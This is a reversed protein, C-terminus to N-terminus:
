PVTYEIHLVPALAAGSDFASATRTGTGTVIIAMANGSSWGSRNVIEQVVSKLEPTRQDVGHAGVVTWQPPSWPGASATTRPRSSVNNNGSGAVFTAATDSAQGQVTLSGANNTAEDVTFQVYAKTVTANRPVTVGTFRMGVAKQVNTGDTTLELDSSDIYTSGSAREEADDAIARVPVDLVSATTQNNVQVAVPDSAKTNGAADTAVATLSVPGNSVSTTNWSVSFGNSGDTDTGISSTDAFFQVKAVSTTTDSASANVPITGSVQGPAPATISVIPATNDVTVNVSDSTQNPLTANDTATAKITHAGDSAGTTDWQVSWAGGTGPSNATGILTGGDFFSVHDVGHDDSANATITISGRLKTGGTPDTITVSPADDVNDLTATVQDSTTHSATDTAIAKFTHAGDTAGVTLWSAGYGDSGDTDVGIPNGDVLFEVQTVGHDDSATATVDVSTGSVTSNNTPSTIHVTPPADNDITVNKTDTTTHGGTDTAIASVSHPGSTFNTTNWTGTYGDGATTDTAVLTSDVKFEVKTVGRDDGATAALSSSTGSVTQGESPSTLAVAPADDVNDVKVSISASATQSGTDSATATVTYPSGSDPYGTTTNWPVTWGGTASTDTGILTTNVFFDVKTIGRDDTPNATVNVTGSVTANNSPNTVAVAPPADVNDVNVNITASGIQNASDTVTATVGYGGDPFSGNATNWAVTWGGTASTDTGIPTSGVKFDVKQIGHDDTPNVTLNVTGSVTQNNVPNTFTVSPPQDSGGTTMEYVKGDNETPQPDNDIGRDPIYYDTRGTVASAPALGLGAAKISSAATISITSLLTGTKTTEYIKKTKHDLTLVSNHATDIAIGEPDGEGYQGVDFHTVVDDGGKSPVGDFVGNTGPSIEYVETGVGDITFLHNTTPDYAVDEPDTNPFPKTSIFSFADDSTGWRGDAGPKVLNVKDADDDSIFLTRDSARYAVGTPENSIAKVTTDGTQQVAGALTTKFLNAHQWISMEEVESDSVMMKNEDSIYTIGCPDPSPPNYAATNWTRVLTANLATPAAAVAAPALTVESIAGLTSANGADAVYLSQRSAADTNDASPAFVMGRPDLIPTDLLYRKSLVGSTNLAYLVNGALVYFLGDAPNYALGQPHLSGVVGLPIDDVNTAGADASVRVISRTADDLLFWHGAPDFTSDRPADVAPDAVPDKQVDGSVDISLLSDGSTVANFSGEVPDYALTQSVTPDTKVDVSVQGAPDEVPTVGTLELKGDSTPTPVFLAKESPVYAIGQPRQVGFEHTAISRLVRATRTTTGAAAASASGVFPLSLTALAAVSAIAVARHRIRSTRSTSVVCSGRESHTATLTARAQSMRSELKSLRRVLRM